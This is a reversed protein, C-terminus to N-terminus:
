FTESESNRVDSQYHCDVRKDSGAFAVRRVRTSYNGRNRDHGVCSGMGGARM